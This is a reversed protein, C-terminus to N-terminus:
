GFLPKYFYKTSISTSAKRSILESQFVVTELIICFYKTQNLHWFNDQWEQTVNSSYHVDALMCAVNVDWCFVNSVRKVSSSYGWLLNQVFQLRRYDIIYLKGKFFSLHFHTLQLVKVDRITTWWDIVLLALATIDEKMTVANISAAVRTLRLVNMSIQM